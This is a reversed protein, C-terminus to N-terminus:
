YYAFSCGGRLRQTKRVMSTYIYVATGSVELPAGM